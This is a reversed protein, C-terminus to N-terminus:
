NWAWFTGAANGKGDTELATGTGDGTFWGVGAATWTTGVGGFEGSVKFTTEM